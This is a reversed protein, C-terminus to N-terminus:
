FTIQRLKSLLFGHSSVRSWCIFGVTLSSCSFVGIRRTAGYAIAPIDSGTWNDQRFPPGPVGHALLPWILPSASATRTSVVACEIRGAKVRTDYACLANGSPNRFQVPEASSAGSAAGAMLAASVTLAMFIILAAVSVASAHLLGRVLDLRCPRCGSRLRM